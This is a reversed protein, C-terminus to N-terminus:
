LIESFLKNKTQKSPPDNPEKIPIYVKLCLVLCLLNTNPTGIINAILINIIDINTYVNNGITVRCEFSRSPEKIKELYSSSVNQM